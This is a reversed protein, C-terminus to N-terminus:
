LKKLSNIISDINFSFNLSNEKHCQPYCYCYHPEESLKKFDINYNGSKESNGYPLCRRLVGDPMLLAYQKGAYCYFNNIKGYNRLWKLYSLSNWIPYGNKKKQILYNINGILKNSAERDNCYRRNETKTLFEFVPEFACYINKSKAYDLTFDIDDRSADDFTSSLCLNFNQNCLYDVTSYVADTYQDGNISKTRERTGHFSVMMFDVLQPSIQKINDLLTGNTVISTYFDLKKAHILLEKLDKRLLPEGGSFGWAFTGMNKFCNMASKIEDTDMENYSLKHCECFSCKLNCRTTILHVVRLPTTKKFLLKIRAKLSKILYIIKM